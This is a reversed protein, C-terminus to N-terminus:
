RKPPEPLIGAVAAIAAASLVGERFLVPPGVTCDLVTSGARESCDGADVYADVTDGFYAEAAAVTTPPPSGGPNASTSTLPRGLREVLATATPHPSIRVGITRGGGTLLPSLTSRAPLVLTLAGPWFAEILREALPTVEDVADDLMARSAVLISIPKDADRGKLGALRRLARGDGADCGLGYLTETPYVVVGGRRLAELAQALTTPEAARV